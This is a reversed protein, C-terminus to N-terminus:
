LKVAIEEISSLIKAHTEKFENFTETLLEGFKDNGYLFSEPEDVQNDDDYYPQLITGRVNELKSVSRSFEISIKRLSPLYLRILMDLRGIPCSPKSGSPPQYDPSYEYQCFHLDNKWEAWLSVQNALLYIEELKDRVVKRKETKEGAHITIMSGALTGLVAILTVFVSVIAQESM